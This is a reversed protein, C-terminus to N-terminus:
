VTKTHYLQTDSIGCWNSEYLEKQSHSNDITNINNISYWKNILTGGKRIFNYPNFILM